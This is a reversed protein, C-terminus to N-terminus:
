RRKRSPKKSKNQDSAKQIKISRLDQKTEGTFDTVKELVNLQTDDISVVTGNKNGIRSGIKVTFGKGTADEVIAVTGGIKDSLIASVKLQALDYRELPPLDENDLGKPALDFAQFPDRKGESIYVFDDIKLNNPNLFEQGDKANAPEAQNANGSEANAVKTGTSAADLITYSDAKKEYQYPKKTQPNIPITKFYKPVLEELTEPPSHKVAMYDVIALQLRMLNEQDASIEGEAKLKKLNANISESPSLVQASDQYLFFLFGLGLLCVLILANRKM